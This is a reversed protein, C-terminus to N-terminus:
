NIILYAITSTDTSDSPTVTFSVGASKATVALASPVTVTGLAQSTLLVLSSATIASNSVVTTAAGSLVFTGASCTASSSANIQLKNGAATLVLNGNTATINGLTATLTTGATITSTASVTTFAGSGPTTGGIAGPAQLRATLAAPTVAQTTGTGTVAQANTSLVGVGKQSTTWDAATVNVTGPSNSGTTSIGQANVGNFIITGATPTVVTLDQTTLSNLDGSSSGLFAWNATIIGLTSTFSTLVYESGAVTDLWRKGVPFFGNGTDQATPARNTVFPVEVSEPRNGFSQTNLVAGQQMGNAPLTM